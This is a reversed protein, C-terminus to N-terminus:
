WGKQILYLFYEIGSVHSLIKFSISKIEHGILSENLLPIRLEPDEDTIQLLIGKDCLTRYVEKLARQAKDKGLVPDKLLSDVTGKDLIIDFCTDPFPLCTVDGKVAGFSHVFRKDLTQSFTTQQTELAGQSFDYATVVIPVTSNNVIHHSLTSSGCGLDLLSFQSKPLAGYLHDRLTEYEVLWEFQKDKKYFEDWYEKKSLHQFRRDTLFLPDILWYLFVSNITKFKDM